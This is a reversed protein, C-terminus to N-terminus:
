IQKCHLWEPINDADSIGYKQLGDDTRMEAEFIKIARDIQSKYQENMKAGVFDYSMLDDNFLARLTQPPNPNIKDGKLTKSKNVIWEDVLEFELAKELSIDWVAYEFIESLSKEAKPIYGKMQFWFYGATIATKAIDQAKSGNFKEELCQIIDELDKGSQYLSRIERFEKKDRIAEQTKKDRTVMCEYFLAKQEEFGAEDIANIARLIEIKKVINYGDISDKFMQRQEDNWFLFAELCPDSDEFLDQPLDILFNKEGEFTIRIHNKPANKGSFSVTFPEKAFLTKGTKAKSPAKKCGQRGLRQMFEEDFVITGVNPSDNELSSGILKNLLDSSNRSARLAARKDLTLPQLLVKLGLYNFSKEFIFQGTTKGDKNPFESTDISFSGVREVKGGQQTDRIQKLPIEVLQHEVVYKNGFHFKSAKRQALFAPPLLTHRDGTPAKKESPYVSIPMIFIGLETTQTHKRPEIISPEIAIGLHPTDPDAPNPYAIIDGVMINELAVKESRNRIVPKQIPM